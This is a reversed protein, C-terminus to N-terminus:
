TSKTLFFSDFNCSFWSIESFTSSVWRAKPSLLGNGESSDCHTTLVLRAIVNRQPAQRSGPYLWRQLVPVGCHLVPVCPHARAGRDPHHLAWQPHREQHCEALDGGPVGLWLAPVVVLPLPTEWMYLQYWQHCMVLSCCKWWILVSFFIRQKFWNHKESGKQPRHCKEMTAQDPQHSCQSVILPCTNRLHFRHSYLFYCIRNGSSTASM